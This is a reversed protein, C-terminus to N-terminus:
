GLGNHKTPRLASQQENLGDPAWHVVFGNTYRLDVQKPRGRGAAKLRPYLRIFRGLREDIQRNGLRIASGDAFEVSWASRLDQEVRAIRLGIADFHSQMARYRSVMERETGAPGELQPLGAPIEDAAPRFLEGQATVLQQGGWRALPVREQVTILLTDPWVRRLAVGAVWPMALLGARLQEVDLTFFGGRVQEAMAQELKRRDLHRFDGKVQVVKLPFTQPDQLRESLLLGGGGMAGFLLLALSWRVVSGPSPRRKEAAATSRKTGM